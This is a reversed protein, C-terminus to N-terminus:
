DGLDALLRQRVRGAPSEPDRAAIIAYRWRPDSDAIAALAAEVVEPALHLTLSWKVGATTGVCEAVGALTALFEGDCTWRGDPSNLAAEIFLYVLLGATVGRHDTIANDYLWSLIIRADDAPTGDRRWVRVAPEAHDVLPDLRGADVAVAPTALGLETADSDSVVGGTASFSLRAWSQARAVIPWDAPLLQDTGNPARFRAWRDDNVYLVRSSGPQTGGRAARRDPTAARRLSEGSGGRDRPVTLLLPLVAAIEPVATIRTLQNARVENLSADAGIRVVPDIDRYLQFREILTEGAARMDYRSIEYVSEGAM